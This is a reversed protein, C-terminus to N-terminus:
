EDDNISTPKLLSHSISKGHANILDNVLNDLNIRNEHSLTKEDNRTHTILM